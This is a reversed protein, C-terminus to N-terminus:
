KAWCGDPIGVDEWVPKSNAQAQDRSPRGIAVASIPSEDGTGAESRVGVLWSEQFPRRVPRVGRREPQGILSPKKEMVDDSVPRPGLFLRTIGYFEWGFAVDAHIEDHAAGEDIM